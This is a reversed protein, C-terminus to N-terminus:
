STRALLEAKAAAVIADVAQGRSLQDGRELDLQALLRDPLIPRFAEEGPAHDRLPARAGEPLDYRDRLITVLVAVRQNESGGRAELWDLTERRVHMYPRVRGPSIASLATAPKEPRGLKKPRQPTMSHCCHQTM